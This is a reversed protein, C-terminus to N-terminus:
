NDSEIKKLTFSANDEYIKTYDKIMDIKIDGTFLLTANAWWIMEGLAGTNKNYYKLEVGTGPLQIVKFTFRNDNIKIWGTPATYNEKSGNNEWYMFDDIGWEGTTQYIRIDNCSTLSLATLIAFLTAWLRKRIM